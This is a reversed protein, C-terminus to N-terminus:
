CLKKGVVVFVHLINTASLTPEYLAPIPLLVHLLHFVQLNTGWIINCHYYSGLNPLIVLYVINSLPPNILRLVGRLGLKPCSPGQFSPWFDGMCDLSFLFQKIFQPFPSFRMSFGGAGRARRRGRSFLCSDPFLSGYKLTKKNNDKLLFKHFYQQLRCSQPAIICFRPEKHMLMRISHM